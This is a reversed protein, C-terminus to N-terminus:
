FCCRNSSAIWAQLPGAVTFGKEQHKDDGATISTATPAPRLARQGCDQHQALPALSSVTL